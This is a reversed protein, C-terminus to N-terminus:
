NKMQDFFPLKQGSIKNEPAFYGSAKGSRGSMVKDVVKISFVPLGYQKPMPIAKSIDLKKETILFNSMFSSQRLVTEFIYILIFKM